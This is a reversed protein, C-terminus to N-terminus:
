PKKPTPADDKKDSSEPPADPTLFKTTLGILNNNQFFSHMNPLDPDELIETKYAQQYNDLFLKKLHELRNEKPIKLYEEATTLNQGLAAQLYESKSHPDGEAPTAAEKMENLMDNKQEVNLTLFDGLRFNATEVYEIGYNDFFHKAWHADGNQYLEAITIRGDILCQFKADYNFLDLQQMVKLVKFDKTDIYSHKKNETIIGALNFGFGVMITFNKCLSLNGWAEPPVSYGSDKRFILMGIRKYIDENGEKNAEIIKKGKEFADTLMKQYQEEASSLNKPDDKSDTQTQRPNSM